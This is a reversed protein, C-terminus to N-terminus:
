RCHEAWQLGASTAWQQIIARSKVGPPRNRQARVQIIARRRPDVEITVLSKEQDKLRLRLSWITTEGRRCRDAYTYVCHQMARGEAHLAHNDLIEQITWDFSDPAGAATEVFRYGQIGSQRWAFCRGLKHSALNSHWVSVLRLLSKLTRGKMSFEPWAPNQIGRGNENPAAADGFKMSQVFDIIPNVDTLSIRPQAVLFLIVTRWFEPHEIAQGLRGGAIERALAKSGGLGRIEGYRLAQPVTYHDPAQRAHHEMTRTLVLPLNLTRLGVGRGLRIYWSQQRFGEPGAPLDWVSDLFGPVPYCALLHHALSRFAPRLNDSPPVWTECPRLWLQQRAALRKLRNLLFIPEVWGPVGRGRGPKLLSTRSRVQALLRVFAARREQGAGLEDLASKIEADIRLAAQEKYRRSFSKNNSENSKKSFEGLNLKMADERPLM